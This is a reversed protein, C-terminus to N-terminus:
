RIRRGMFRTDMCEVEVGASTADKLAQELAAERGEPLTVTLTVDAAYDTEEVVCDHEPLINQVVGLLSYPCTILLVSYRSMQNIGAAELGLQASKTYARVLGGTGLLVGGFYRTVVCCVNTINERRLVDLIPMGATGQPEGDDSYRMYNGERIIYAYCHHRADRYKAKVSQIAEIAAEPTEVPFIEGIFKSKRDEYRGEGYAAPILYSDHM